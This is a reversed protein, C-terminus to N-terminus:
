PDVGERMSKALESARGGVQAAWKSALMEAAARDFDRAEVAALMRSFKCIGSVGLNFAMDALVRQRVDDLSGFCPVAGRLQKELTAVDNWFLYEAEEDSIGVDDLNRGIGITLKGVTDKYPKLRLGEHRVLQAKLRDRNM